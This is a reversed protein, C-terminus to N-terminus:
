GQDDNIHSNKTHISINNNKACVNIWHCEKILQDTNIIVNNVKVGADIQRGGMLEYQEVNLLLKLANNSGSFSLQTKYKSPFHFQKTRFCYKISRYLELILQM